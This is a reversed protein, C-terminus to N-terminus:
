SVSVSVSVMSDAFSGGFGFGFGVGVCRGFGRGFGSVSVVWVSITVGESMVSVAIGSSISERVMVEALPRSLGSSSGFGSVSVVTVSVSVVSIAIRSVTVVSVMVALSGSLGGSLGSVCVVSIGGIRIGVTAVITIRIATITIM